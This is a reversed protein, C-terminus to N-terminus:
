FSVELLVLFFLFGCSGLLDPKLSVALKQPLLPINDSGATGGGFLM